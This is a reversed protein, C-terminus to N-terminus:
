GSWSRRGMRRSLQISRPRRVRGESDSMAMSYIGNFDLRSNQREAKGMQMLLDLRRDIPLNGWAAAVAELDTRVLHSLSGVLEQDLEGSENLMELAHALLQEDAM